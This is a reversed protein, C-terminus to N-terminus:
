LEVAPTVVPARLALAAGETPHLVLQVLSAPVDDFEFRGADDLMVHRTTHRGERDLRLEARLAAPPALWGDLRYGGRAAPAITLMVTLSDSAFTVSRAREEGRAGVPEAAATQIRALETELELLTLAFGIRDVLGPPVPDLAAHLEAIRALVDIDAEDLPQAAFGAEDDSGRTM